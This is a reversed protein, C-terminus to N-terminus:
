YGSRLIMIKMIGFINELSLSFICMVFATVM